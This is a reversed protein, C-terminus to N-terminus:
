QSLGAKLRQVAATIKPRNENKSVWNERVRAFREQMEAIDEETPEVVTHGSGESAWGAVLEAAVKDAEEGWARSLKMGSEADIAARAKDPLADFTDKRMALFVQGNGFKAMYHHKAVEAVGTAKSLNPHSTVADIVGRTLAEASESVTV